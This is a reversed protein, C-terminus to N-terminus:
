GVDGNELIKADEYVEVHRRYFELKCCELVGILANYTRYSPKVVLGLVLRTIIYNLCGEAGGNAGAVKLKDLLTDIAPDLQDRQETKIYPM